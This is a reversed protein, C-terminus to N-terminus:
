WQLRFIRSFCGNRVRLPSPPKLQGGEGARLPSAPKLGVCMCALLPSVPKVRSIESAPPRRCPWLWVYTACLKGRDSKLGIWLRQLQLSAFEFNSTAAPSNRAVNLDCQHPPRLLAQSRRGRPRHRPRAPSNVAVCRRQHPPRRLSRLVRGPRGAGQTQGRHGHAHCRYPYFIDVRKPPFHRSLNTSFTYYDIYESIM